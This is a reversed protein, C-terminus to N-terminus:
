TCNPSIRPQKSPALVHGIGEACSSVNQAQDITIHFNFIEYGFALLLVGVFVLPTAWPAQPWLHAFRDPQNDLDPNALWMGSRELSHRSEEPVGTDTTRM